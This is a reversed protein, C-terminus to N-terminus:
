HYYYYYKRIGSCRSDHDVDSYKMFLCYNLVVLVFICYKLLWHALIIMEKPHFSDAGGPAAKNKPDSQVEKGVM